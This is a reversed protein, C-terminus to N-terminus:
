RSIRLNSFYAETDTGVWLAVQGRSLGHKLDNVILAPQSAGNVYLEAQSGSVVIRLRTWAEPELDVYSEYVGPSEERLRHWPYDPASVYQTTHNRRLQDRARANTQRVYFCEYAGGPQVRFALGVFGRVDPPAGARPRGVVDVEITGDGFDSGTLLALLAENGGTGADKPPTVQVLHVSKRGRYTVVEPGRDAPQKVAELGRLSDLPYASAAAESALASTALLAALAVPIWWLAAERDV